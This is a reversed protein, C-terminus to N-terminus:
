FNYAVYNYISQSKNQVRPTCTIGVGATPEGGAIGAQGSFSTDITVTDWTHVYCSHIKKTYDNSVSRFTQTLIAKKLQAIGVPDDKVAINIWSDHGSEAWFEKGNKGDFSGDIKHNYQATFDYSDTINPCTQIIYDPGADPASIGGAISNELWIVTSTATYQYPNHSGSKSISTTLICKGNGGYTPRDTKNEYTSPMNRLDKKTLFEYHDDVEKTLCETYSLACLDGNSSILDNILEEGAPNDTLFRELKKKNKNGKIRNFMSVTPDIDVSLATNNIINVSLNTFNIQDHYEVYDTENSNDSKPSAFVSCPLSLVIILALVFSLHKKSLKM